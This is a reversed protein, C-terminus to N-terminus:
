KKRRWGPPEVHEAVCCQLDALHQRLQHFAFALAFIREVTEIPLVQLDGARLMAIGDAYKGLTADVALRSPPQKREALARGAARLYSSGADGAQLLTDGFWTSATPLPDIAARAIMAYDERLRHLTRLLRGLDPVLALYTAREHGGEMAIIHLEAYAREIEQSIGQRGAEGCRSALGELLQPLARAMLDLLHVASEIAMDYAQTPFVFLSVVLGVLCGVAVEIVREFASNVPGLHTIIPALLVLVATFPAAGFRVNKAAVFAIPLLAIALVVVLSLESNHPILAGVFGAFIAGGLTSALYDGSAKLSRGLNLQTMLVATLVAWLAFRLQLLQSLLLTLVGSATVRLCLKFEARNRDLLGGLRRAKAVNLPTM